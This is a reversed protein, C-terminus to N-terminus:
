KIEENYYVPNIDNGGCLILGDYDASSDSCYTPVVIGGCHNVADIYYEKKSNVSLLIRPEM